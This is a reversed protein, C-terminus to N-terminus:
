LRIFHFLFYFNMEYKYGLMYCVVKAETKTFSNDCVTGWTDNYLIELRGKKNDSGGVLRVSVTGLLVCLLM